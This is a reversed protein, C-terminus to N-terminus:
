PVVNGQSDEDAPGLAAPAATSLPKICAAPVLTSTNSFNTRDNHLELPGSLNTSNLNVIYDVAGCSGADVTMARFALIIQTSEPVKTVTATVPWQNLGACSALDGFTRGGFTRTGTAKLTTAITAFQYHVTGGFATFCKEAWAFSGMTLCLIGAIGGVFLRLYQRTKM